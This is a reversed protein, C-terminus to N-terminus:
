YINTSSTLVGELAHLEKLLWINVPTPINLQDGLEIVKGAFMEVETKRGAEVDQLMSTKGDPSLSSLIDHWSEIDGENLYIGQSQAILMVERMASDMLSRPEGQKQFIRYTARLAASAQNIGVNIMFKWWLTRIMDDPIVYKIGARDFVEKVRQVKRSLGDNIAEGFFVRGQNSYTTVNNNRVADIGLVISYLVKETGYAAMMMEESEIGNMFSLMITEDGVSGKLDHLAKILHHHKVAVIILDWQEPISGPYYVPITYHKGNVVIGHEKLDHYRRESAIFSVSDKSMTHFMSAYSVGIAGAGIIAIKEIPKM